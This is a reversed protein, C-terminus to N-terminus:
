SLQSSTSGSMRRKGLAVCEFYEEAPSVIRERAATTNLECTTSSTNCLGSANVHVHARVDVRLQQGSVNAGLLTQTSLLFGPPPAYPDAALQLDAAAEFSAHCFRTNWTNNCTTWPLPDRVSAFLYYVSWGLIVNYYFATLYAVTCAACGVGASLSLSGTTNRTFTFTFAILSCM